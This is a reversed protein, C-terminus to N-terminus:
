LRIPLSGTSFICLPGFSGTWKGGLPHSLYPRFYHNKKEQKTFCDSSCRLQVMEHTLGSLQLFPSSPLCFTFISPVPPVINHGLSELTRYGSPHSGTALLLNKTKITEGSKKLRLEFREQLDQAKGELPTLEQVSEGLLLQGGLQKFRSVFLDIVSESSDTVPFLRRDPQEYLSLGREHFWSITEKPGFRTFLGLLEKQGRPYFQVLERPDLRGNTVNCRGGGSIRLKGLVAQSREILLVKAKCKELLSLASFFGAAGGGVVVLDYM